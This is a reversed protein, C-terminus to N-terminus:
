YFTLVTLIDNTHLDHKLESLQFRAHMETLQGTKHYCGPEVQTAQSATTPHSVEIRKM